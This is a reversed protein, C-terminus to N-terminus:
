FLLFTIITLRDVELFLFSFSNNHALGALSFVTCYDLTKFTLFVASIGLALGIDGVRNVMM